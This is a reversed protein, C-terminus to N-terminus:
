ATEGHLEKRLFAEFMLVTWIPASFDRRGSEHLEVMQALYAINFIGTEALIPGLLSDRVAGGVAWTEFGANELRSAIARVAEPVPLELTKM